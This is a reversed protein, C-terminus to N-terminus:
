KKQPSWQQQVFVLVNAVIKKTKKYTEM